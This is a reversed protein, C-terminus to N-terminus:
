LRASAADRQLASACATRDVAWLRVIRLTFVGMRQRYQWVHSCPSLSLSLPPSSSHPFFSPFFTFSHSHEKDRERENKGETRHTGCNWHTPSLIARHVEEPLVTPRARNFVFSLSTLSLAVTLARQREKTKQVFLGNSTVVLSYLRRADNRDWRRQKRDFSCFLFFFLSSLVTGGKNKQM